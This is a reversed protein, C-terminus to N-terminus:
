LGPYTPFACSPVSGSGSVGSVTVGTGSATINAKYVGINAYQATTKTTDLSINELTLGLPHSSDHGDLVSRAGPASSVAKAGNVVIDTFYPIQSGSSSSYNTDFDLLYQVGSLCTDTYTVRSVKGGRSADSKIRLGNDSSSTVGASDTGQVTNGQVLVNTVGSNTESGISIGHTGYFHNDSITINRSANGGAKIAIGDDGDQIYSHTITVDTAGAPDIGDTNRANAPTKIRVGWATFGVANQFVVHFNPSNLLDVDYLVFNNGSAVLLRPNNQTGGNNKADTALQWWTESGGYLKLDGRGDIRGQSGSGSRMGMVAANAGSVTLFPVCGGGSSAVTGCTPKGSVQYRAPNLAAFLTVGADVLLTEGAGVTLPGSLFATASGGAELEVAKGTGACKTLAAQIRATDPPDSEQSNAFMRNGPSSLTSGITACATPVTPERVTRSDGTATPVAAPVAASMSFILLGALAGAGVFTLIRM